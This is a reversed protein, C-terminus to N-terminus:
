KSKRKRQPKAFRGEVNTMATAIFKMTDNVDALWAQNLTPMSAIINQCERESEFALQLYHLTEESHVALCQKHTLSKM